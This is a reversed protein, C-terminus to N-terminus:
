VAYCPHCFLETSLITKVRPVCTGTLIASSPCGLFFEDLVHTWVFSKRVDGERSGKFLQHSFLEAPLWRTVQKLRM